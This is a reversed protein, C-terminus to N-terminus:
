TGFSRRALWTAVDERGLTVFTLVAVALGFGNAALGVYALEPVVRMVSILKLTSVVVGIMGLVSAARVLARATESGRMLGLIAATTLVLSIWPARSEPSRSIMWAMLALHLGFCAMTAKLSSPMNALSPAAPTPDPLSAQEHMGAFASM